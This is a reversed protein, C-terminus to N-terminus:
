LLGLESSMSHWLYVVPGATGAGLVLSAQPSGPLCTILYLSKLECWGGPTSIFARFDIPPEKGGVLFFAEGSRLNRCESEQRWQKMRWPGGRPFNSLQVTCPLPHQIRNYLWCHHKSFVQILSGLHWYGRLLYFTLTPSMTDCCRSLLCSIRLKIGLILFYTTFSSFSQKCQSFDSNM